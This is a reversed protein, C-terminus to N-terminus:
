FFKLNCMRMLLFKFNEETKKKKYTKKARRKRWEVEM